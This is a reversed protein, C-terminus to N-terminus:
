SSEITNMLKSTTSRGSTRRNTSTSNHYSHASDVLEPEVVLADHATTNDPSIPQLSNRDEQDIDIHIGGTPPATTSTVANASIGSISSLMGSPLTIAKDGEM